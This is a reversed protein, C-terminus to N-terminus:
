SPIVCIIGKELYHMTNKQMLHIIWFLLFYTQCNHVLSTELKSEDIPVQNENSKSSLEKLLNRYSNFNISAEDMIILLIEFNFQHM